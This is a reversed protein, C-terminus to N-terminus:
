GAHEAWRHFSTTSSWGPPLGPALRVDIEWLHWGIRTAHTDYNVLSVMSKCRPQRWPTMGGFWLSHTWLPSSLAPRVAFTFISPSDYNVLGGPRKHRSLHVARLPGSEFNGRVNHGLGPPPSSLHTVSPTTPTAQRQPKKLKWGPSTDRSNM